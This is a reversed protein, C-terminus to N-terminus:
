CSNLPAFLYCRCIVINAISNSSKHLTYLYRIRLHHYLVGEVIISRWFGSGIFSVLLITICVAARLCGKSM